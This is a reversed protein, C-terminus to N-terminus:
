ATRMMFMSWLALVLLLGFMMVFIWQGQQAFYGPSVIVTYLLMGGFILFGKSAWAAKRLLGLGSALLGLATTFEAALHFSLRIPESQLEPVKGTILFFSWQAVMMLGVVIAYIGAFKMKREKKLWGFECISYGIKGRYAGV